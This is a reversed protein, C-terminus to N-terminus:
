ADAIELDAAAREVIRVLAQRIRQQVVGVHQEPPTVHRVFLHAVPQDVAHLLPHQLSHAQKDQVGAM